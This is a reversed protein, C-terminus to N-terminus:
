RLGDISSKEDQLVSVRYGNFLKWDVKGGRRVVVMKRETDICKVVRPVEYSHFLTYYIDKQSWIIESLTIDELNM